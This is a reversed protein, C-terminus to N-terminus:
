RLSPSAPFSGTLVGKKDSARLAGSSLDPPMLPDRALEGFRVVALIRQIASKPEAFTISTALWKALQSNSTFDQHRLM